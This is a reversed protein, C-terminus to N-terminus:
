SSQTRPDWGRTRGGQGAARIASYGTVEDLDGLNQTNLWISQQRIATAELKQSVGGNNAETWYDPAAQAAIWAAIKEPLKEFLTSDDAYDFVVEVNEVEEDEWDQDQTNWVYKVSDEEDLQIVLRDNPIRVELYAPNVPVRGAANVELDIRRINFAWGISLIEKRAKGLTRKALQSSASKDDPENIAPRNAGRVIINLADLYRM